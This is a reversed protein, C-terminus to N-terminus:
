TLINTMTVRQHFKKSRTKREESELNKLILKQINRITDNTEKISLILYDKAEKECNDRQTM